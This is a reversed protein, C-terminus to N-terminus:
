NKQEKIDEIMKSLKEELKNLEKNQNKFKITLMKNKEENEKKVILEYKEKLEKNKKSM